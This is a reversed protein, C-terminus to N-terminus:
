NLEEKITDGTETETWRVFSIGGRKISLTIEGEFGAGIRRGIRLFTALIIPSFRMIREVIQAQDVM